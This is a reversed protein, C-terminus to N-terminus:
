VVARKITHLRLLPGAILGSRILNRMVDALRDQTQLM